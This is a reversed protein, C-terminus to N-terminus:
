WWKFLERIGAVGGIVTITQLMYGVAKYIEAKAFAKSAEATIAVAMAQQHTLQAQFAAVEREHLESLTEAGDQEGVNTM